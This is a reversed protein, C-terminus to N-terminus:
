ENEEVSDDLSNDVNDSDIDNFNHKKYEEDEVYRHM